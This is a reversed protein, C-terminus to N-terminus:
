FPNGSKTRTTSNNPAEKLPLKSPTSNPDNSRLLFRRNRLLSLFGGPYPAVKQAGRKEDLRRDLEGWGMALLDKSIHATGKPLTFSCTIGKKRNSKMKIEGKHLDIFEKALALGLGTGSPTDAQANSYNEFQAYRDFVKEVVEQPLGDGSNFVSFCIDKQRESIELRVTGLDSVYKFANFVLNIIVKEIKEADLYLQIPNDPISVM